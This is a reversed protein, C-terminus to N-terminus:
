KFQKKLYANYDYGGSAHPPLNLTIFEVEEPILGGTSCDNKTLNPKGQSLTSFASAIQSQDMSSGALRNMYEVFTDFKIDPSGGSVDTFIREFKADGGEFDIGILGLTTLCSKFELRNLSGDKDVDFHNFTDKYEKLQEASIGTGGSAAIQSEVSALNKTILKEVQHIEFALDDVTHDTHENSEINAEECLKEAKEVQKLGGEHQKVKNLIGSLKEKAHHLDNGFDALAEHKLNQITQYFANASDGFNKELKSKIGNMNANLQRRRTTEITGLHTLHKETDSPHLGQSPEYPPLKQFRLKTQISTFLTALDDKEQVMQRRKTRRYEKFNVMAAKVEPYTDVDKAHSFQKSREDIEGHLAKVRKEYDHSMSQIQSMFNLFNKVKKGAVEVQSMNSFVNYLQAIYTMISREDPKATDIIDAADLIKPVQLHTEAV